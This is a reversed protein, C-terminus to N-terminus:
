VSGFPQAFQHGPQGVWAVEIRSTTRLPLPRNAVRDRPGATRHGDSSAVARRWVPSDGGFQAALSLPVPGRPRALCNSGCRRAGSSESRRRRCPRLSSFNKPHPLHLSSTRVLARLEDSGPAPPSTSCPGRLRSITEGWELDPKSSVAVDAVGPHQRLIREVAAPWVNEGGTIIMDSLRGKIHLKGDGDIVGADGTAFWGHRTSPSPATGTPGCCCRAGYCCKGPPPRRCKSATSCPLRRVRRRQRDRDHRVHRCRQSTAPRPAGLGRPPGPLFPRSKRALATPVLSVLVNPGAAASVEM